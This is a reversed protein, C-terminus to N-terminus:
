CRSTPTSSSPSTAISIAAASLWRDKLMLRWAFRLDQVLDDLFRFGRADRHQSQLSTVGGIRLSAQRKAEDPTMGKRINEETAMELHAAMEESFDRDLESGRFFARLRAVLQKLTAM